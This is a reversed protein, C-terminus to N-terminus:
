GMSHGAGYKASHKSNCCILKSRYIEPHVNLSAQGVIDHAAVGSGLVDPRISYIVALVILSVSTRPGSCYVTVLGESEIGVPLHLCDLIFIGVM